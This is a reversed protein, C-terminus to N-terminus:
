ESATVKTSPLAQRLRSLGDPTISTNTLELEELRGFRELIPLSTDDFSRMDSIRLARLNPTHLLPTLGQPTISPVSRGEIILERMNTSPSIRALADDGRLGGGVRYTTAHSEALAAFVESPLPNYIRVERLRPLGRLAAIEGATPRFGIGGVTTQFAVGDIEQWWPALWEWVGSDSQASRYTVIGRLKTVGGTALRRQQVKTSYLSLLALPACALTVVLMLAKLSFRKRLRM